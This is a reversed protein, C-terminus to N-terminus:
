ILNFIITKYEPSSIEEGKGWWKKGKKKRCGEDFLNNSM